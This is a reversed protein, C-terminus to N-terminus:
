KKVVSRRNKRFFAFLGGGLILGLGPTFEFPVDQTALFNLQLDQGAVGTVSLQISDVSTVDVGTFDSFQFELSQPSGLTVVPISQSVSAAPNLGDFLSIDLTGGGLDNVNIGVFLSDDGNQTLDLDGLNANETFDTFNATSFGNYIVTGTAVAGDGSNFTLVDSNVSLFSFSGSDSSINLHRSGGVVSATPLGTDFDTPNNTSTGFTNNLFVQQNVDNTDSFADLTFANAVNPTLCLSAFAIAFCNIKVITLDRKKFIIISVLNSHGLCFMM